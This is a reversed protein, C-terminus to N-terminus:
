ASRMTSLENRYEKSATLWNTLAILTWATEQTSHWHGGARHAMLWRVANATIPNQPDIQVFANLVIATTRTDTNWNWYDAPGKRGIRARRRCSPRRRWTRCSRTSARTRRTSCHVAGAGPLGQRVPGALQPARLHLQDARGAARRRTGARLLMFASRNYQWHPLTPRVPEAPERKLYHIGNNLVTTRFPIAPM